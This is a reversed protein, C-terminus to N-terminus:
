ELITSAQFGGRNMPKAKYSYIVSNLSHKSACENTIIQNHSSRFRQIQLNSFGVFLMLAIILLAPALNGSSQHM